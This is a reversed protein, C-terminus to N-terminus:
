QTDKPVAKLLKLYYHVKAVYKDSKVQSSTLAAAKPEGRNFCVTARQRDPWFRNFCQVLFQAGIRLNFNNENALRKPGPKCRCIKHATAISLQSCGFSRGDDGRKHLCASSEVLIIAQFYTGLGYLDGESKAENLWHVQSKNLVLGDAHAQSFILLFALFLSKM